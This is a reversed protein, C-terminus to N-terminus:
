SIMFKKLLNSNNNRIETNEMNIKIILDSIDVKRKREHTNFKKVLTEINIYTRNDIDYKDMLAKIERLEINIKNEKDPDNNELLEINNYELDRKKADIIIQKKILQIATKNANLMNIVSNEIELIKTNVDGKATKLNNLASIVDPDLDAGHITILNESESILGLLRGSGAGGGGGTGSGLLRTLTPLNTLSATPPISPITPLFSRIKSILANIANINTVAAINAATVPSCNAISDLNEVMLKIEAKITETTALDGTVPEGTIPSGVVTAVNEQMKKILGIESALNIAKTSLLGDDIIDFCRAIKLM